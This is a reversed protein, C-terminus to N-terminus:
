PTDPPTIGQERLSRELLDCRTQLQRAWLIISAIGTLGGAGFIVRSFLSGYHMYINFAYIYTVLGASMGMGLATGSVPKM